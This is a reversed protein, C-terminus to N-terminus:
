EGYRVPRIQSCSSADRQLRIICQVSTHPRLIISDGDRLDAAPLFDGSLADAILVMCHLQYWLKQDCVFRKSQAHRHFVLDCLCTSATPPAAPRLLASMIM